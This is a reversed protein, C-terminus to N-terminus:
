AFASPHNGSGAGRAQRRFDSPSLGTRRTFTSTLHSHSSFGAEYAIATIDMDAHALLRQACRLRQSILYQAPTTGFAARFAVLLHHTSMGALSALDGITIRGSLNEYIYERLRRSQAPALTPRTRPSPRASTTGRSYARFLHLALADSLAHGNMASADDAQQTAVALRCVLGHLLPDQVGAIPAFDREEGRAGLLGVGVGGAPDLHIVAYRIATGRASGAYRRGAPISWAEGPLAPGTSGGHGDLETELSEMRGGLHVIVIHRRDSISWDTPRRIDERFLRFQLAPWEGRSEELIIPAQARDHDALDALDPCHSSLLMHCRTSETGGM